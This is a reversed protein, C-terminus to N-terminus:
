ATIGIGHGADGMPGLAPNGFPALIPWPVAPRPPPPLPVITSPLPLAPILGLHFSDTFVLTGVFFTHIATGLLTALELNVQQPTAGDSGGSSLETMYAGKIGAQLAPKKADLGVLGTPPFGPVFSVFVGLDTPFVAPGVTPGTPTVVPGTACPLMVFAGLVYVKGGLTSMAETFEQSFDEIIVSSEKGAIAADRKKVLATEIQDTVIKLVNGPPDVFPGYLHSAIQQIKDSDVIMGLGAGVHPTLVKAINPPLVGRGGSPPKKPNTGPVGPPPILIATQVIGQTVYSLCAQAIDSALGSILADSQEGHDNSPAMSDEVHKDFAAALQQILIPFATSLPM